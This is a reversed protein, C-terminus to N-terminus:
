YTYEDYDYINERWIVPNGIFHLDPSGPLITMGNLCNEAKEMNTEYIQPFLERIIKGRELFSVGQQFQEEREKLHKLVDTVTVGDKLIERIETMKDGM